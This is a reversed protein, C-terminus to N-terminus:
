VKIENGGRRFFKNKKPETPPDMNKVENEKKQKDMEKEWKAREKEEFYQPIPEYHKLDTNLISANEFTRRDMMTQLNEVEVSLETITINAQHLLSTKKIFESPKINYKDALILRTSHKQMNFIWKRVIVVPLGGPSDKRDLVEIEDYKFLPWWPRKLKQKSERNWFSLNGPIIVEHHIKFLVRKLMGRNTQEALCLIKDKTFYFVEYYSDKNCERDYEKIQKVEQMGWLWYGIMYGASIPIHCAYPELPIIVLDWKSGYTFLLWFIVDISMFIVLGITFPDKPYVFKTGRQVRSGIFAFILAFAVAIIVLAPADMM